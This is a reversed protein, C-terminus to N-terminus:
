RKGRAHESGELEVPDVASAPMEQKMQDANLEGLPVYKQSMMPIGSQDDLLNPTGSTYEGHSEPKSANRKKHKKMMVLVLALIAALGFLGCAVGIGAQAATSLRGAKDNEQSTQTPTVNSSTSTHSTSTM